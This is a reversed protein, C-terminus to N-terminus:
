GDGTDAPTLLNMMAVIRRAIRTTKNGAAKRSGYWGSTLRKMTAVYRNRANIIHIKGKETEEVRWPLAMANVVEQDIAFGAIVAPDQGRINEVIKIQRTGM